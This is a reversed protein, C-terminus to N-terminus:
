KLHGKVKEVIETMSHQSKVIYEKVGLALCKNIDGESSLISIVIVPIDKTAESGKLEELVTIGDVESLLLDLIVLVPKQDYIAALGERGNDMEFVEFDESNIEKVLLKNLIEDGQISVV